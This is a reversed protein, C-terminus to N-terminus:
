PNGKEKTKLRRVSARLARNSRELTANDSTLRSCREVLSTISELIGKAKRRAQKTYNTPNIKTM